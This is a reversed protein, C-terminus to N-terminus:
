ENESLNMTTKSDQKKFKTTVQNATVNISHITPPQPTTLNGIKFTDIRMENENSDQKIM